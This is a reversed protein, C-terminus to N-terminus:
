IQGVVEFEEVSQITGGTAKAIEERVKSAAERSAELDAETEYLVVAVMRGTTEDAMAYLNKVGPIERSKALIQDAIEGRVEKLRDVPVAATTVRAFM